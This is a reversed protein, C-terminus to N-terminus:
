NRKTIPMKDFGILRNQEISSTRRSYGLVMGLNDNLRKEALINFTQKNYKPQLEATGSNDPRVQKLIKTSLRWSGNKGM